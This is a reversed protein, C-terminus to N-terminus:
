LPEIDGEARTAHFEAQWTAFSGEAIAGRMSEM